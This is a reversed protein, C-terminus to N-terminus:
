FMDSSRLIHRVHHAYHIMNSFLLVLGGSFWWGDPKSSQCNPSGISLCCSGRSARRLIGGGPERAGASPPKGSRRSLSFEWTSSCSSSLPRVPLSACCAPHSTDWQLPCCSPVLPRESFCCFWCSSFLPRPPNDAPSRAPSVVTLLLYVFCVSTHSTWRKIWKCANIVYQTLM